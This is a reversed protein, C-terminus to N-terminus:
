HHQEVTGGGLIVAASDSFLFQIHVAANSKFSRTKYRSANEARVTM